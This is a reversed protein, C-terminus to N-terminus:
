TDAIRLQAVKSLEITDRKPMQQPAAQAPYAVALAAIVSSLVFKSLM